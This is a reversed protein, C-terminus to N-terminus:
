HTWCIEIPADGISTDQVNATLWKTKDKSLWVGRYEKGVLNDVYFEYDSFQENVADTVQHHVTKRINRFRWILTNLIHRNEESLEIQFKKIKFKNDTKVGMGIYYNYNGNFNYMKANDKPLVVLMLRDNTTIKQHLKEAVLCLDIGQKIRKTEYLPIEVGNPISDYNILLSDILNRIDCNIPNLLNNM